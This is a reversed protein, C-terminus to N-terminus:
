LEQIYLIANLIPEGLPQPIDEKAYTELETSSAGLIKLAYLATINLDFAPQKLLNFLIKKLEEQRKTELKDLIRYPQQHQDKKSNILHHLLRYKTYSLSESSSLVDFVSEIAQNKINDSINQDYTSQVLLWSAQKSSGQWHKLIIKLKDIHELKRKSNPLYHQFFHCFNKADKDKTIKEDPNFESLLNDLDKDQDIHKHLESKELLSKDDELDSNPFSPDDFWKTRLREIEEANVAILTKSANLNLGKSLLHEQLILLYNRALQPDQAFIRMDDNYRGFEIDADKMAEDVDRLYLNALFGELNNGITLGQQLNQLTQVKKLKNSYSVIKPSLLKEFIQIFETNSDISLQNEIYKILYQHSVSDYFSSVDTRILVKYQEACQKQWKRFNAVSVNYYDEFLFKEAQKGTARRNAFCKNSLTKDLHNALIILFAYRIVLDKFPLYIMRRYCLNNKPFYYTYAVRVRFDKPYKLEELIEGIIQQQYKQVYEIEFYDFYSDNKLRDNLAYIFAQKINEESRFQNLLKIHDM